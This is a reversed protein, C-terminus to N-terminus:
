FCNDLETQSPIFKQLVFLLLWNSEEKMSPFSFSTLVAPCFGRLRYNNKAMRTQSLQKGTLIKCQKGHLTCIAKHRYKKRKGSVDNDLCNLAYSRDCVFLVSVKIVFSSLALSFDIKKKLFM